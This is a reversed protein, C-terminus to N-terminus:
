DNECEDTERMVDDCRVPVETLLSTAIAFTAATCAVADGFPLCADSGSRVANIFAEMEAAHGKGTAGASLKRSKGKSTITATRWNDIVASRNQGFVEVREKGSTTDGNAVYILTGISGDSLRLTAVCNDNSQGALGGVMEAYAREVTAGAIFQILDVWHCGESVIRWGGEDADQYWSDAKIEGANVRCVIEIPSRAGAFEDRVAIALPSFRRNYGPMLIRGSASHAAIVDRLDVPKLAIPKEVFVHKGARLAQASFAAHTDHRTAIVVAHVDDDKLIDNIDSTCYDFGHRSGASRASLGGASCIGRLTAGHAKKLAPILTATAFNGAGILGIGIDGHAKTDGVRSDPLEIRTALRADRPYEFLIAVGAHGGGEHLRRYAEPAEDFPYTTPKLLSPRVAGGAVLRLFEEMNRNETWRVYGIPYDIGRREYNADYRGPGYSRSMVVRLEKDYYVRWDAEVPVMGVIAVTGRDRVVEGALAMPDNSKTSAAIYAADIGAGDTLQRITDKLAPDNRHLAAEAGCQRALDLKDEAIDVGIVRCGAAKLIQVGLLGVLGLGVVLVSDGLKVDAQRVGHMAIAGVTTFAADRLDTADNVRAVLNRPVFVFEAHCAIGEGACAVLDGVHIDDIGAGVAEVRGAMSYGLPTLAELRERVKNMSEVIGVQKVSEIVQRVKDPRARAKEILSMRAQQVKMRETGTSVLSYCTRVLVGGARCLPAPVDELSLSGDRYNQVVQKM